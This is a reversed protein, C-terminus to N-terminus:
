PDIETVWQRSQDTAVTVRDNDDNVIEGRLYCSLVCYVYAFVSHVM